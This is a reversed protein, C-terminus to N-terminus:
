QQKGSGGSSSGSSSVADALPVLAINDTDLPTHLRSRVAAVAWAFSDANFAQAPFAARNPSFLQADLAAFQEQFFQRCPPPLSPCLSFAPTASPAFSSALM